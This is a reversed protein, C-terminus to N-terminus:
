IQRLLAELEPMATKTYDKNIQTSVKAMVAKPLLDRLVGLSQPAAILIMNTFDPMLSESISAVGKLFDIVNAEHKDRQEYSTRRQSMGVHAHGPRDDSLDRDAENFLGMTHVLELTITDGIATNRFFTANEGDAVLLLTQSGIRM